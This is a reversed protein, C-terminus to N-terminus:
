DNTFSMKRTLSATSTYLTYYYIGPSPIVEGKIYLDNRGAHYDGSHDYIMKGTIDYITMRIVERKPLAFSIMTGETFPNPKNQFLQYENTYAESERMDLRLEEVETEYENVRYCEPEIFAAELILDDPNLNDAPIAIISKGAIDVPATSAWSINLTGEEFDYYWENESLLDSTIGNLQDPSLAGVFLAMQMGDIEGQGSAASVVLQANQNENQTIQTILDFHTSSRKEIKPGSQLKQFFSGNVDGIKIGIFDAYVGEIVSDIQITEKFPVNFPNYPDPFQYNKDVFRWSTNDPFRSNIGLIVKRIELLDLATIHGSKNADAAIMKYPSILKARGLLHKQILVLDLTSVGERHKIDNSPAIVYTVGESLGEIVYKGTV